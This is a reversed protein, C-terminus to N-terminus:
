YIIKRNKEKECWNCKSSAECLFCNRSLKDSLYFTYNFTGEKCNKSRHSSIASLIINIEEENYDCELLIDKALNYSAIEHSIGDKYQMWRGIDHLLATGYVVEKSLNINNELVMIYSIRAVDLFHQLDHSCFIRNKEYKENQSVCEKFKYNNLVANIKDM